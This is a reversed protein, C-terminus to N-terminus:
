RNVLAARLLWPPAERLDHQFFPPGSVGRPFRKLIAPRHLLFPRLLPWVRAYYKLVEHKTIGERPWYLRDVHTLTVTTGEVDVSFNGSADDLELFDALPLATRRFVRRSAAPARARTM